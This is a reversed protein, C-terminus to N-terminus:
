VSPRFSWNKTPRFSTLRGIRPKHLEAFNVSEGVIVQEDKVALYPVNFLFAARLRHVDGAEVGHIAKYAAQLQKITIMLRDKM